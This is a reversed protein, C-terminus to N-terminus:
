EDVSTTTFPKTPTLNHDPWLAAEIINRMEDYGSGMRMHVRELALRYRDRETMTKDLNRMALEYEQDDCQKCDIDISVGHGCTIEAVSM